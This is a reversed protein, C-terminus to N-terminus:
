GRFEKPLVWDYERHLEDLSQTMYATRFHEYGYVNTRTDAKLAMYIRAVLRAKDGGRYDRLDAALLDNAEPTEM